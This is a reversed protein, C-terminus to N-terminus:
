MQAKLKLKSNLAEIMLSQLAHPNM